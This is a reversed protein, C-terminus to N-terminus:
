SFLKGHGARKSRQLDATDPRKLVQISRAEETWAILGLSALQGLWYDMCWRGHKEHFRAANKVIDDFHQLPPVAIPHHQHYARANATWYVPIGTASLRTAFDTEEGGYGVFAEDMGGISLYAEKSLAFSLGWLEGSNPERRVGIQPITPKSPHVTGLRDLDEFTWEERTAGQPLYFVEGLFLGRRQSMAKAYSAILNPSPICDVDLFVLDDNKAAHVAANRSAALPLRDGPVHVHRIPCGPNPLDTEPEPQMWAIVLEDPCQRQQQLGLILNRLHQSRGRVITLVSTQV